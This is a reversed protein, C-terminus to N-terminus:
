EEEEKVADIAKFTDATVAAMQEADEIVGRGLLTRSVSSDSVSGDPLLAPAGIANSHAYVGSNPLSGPHAGSEAYAKMRAAALERQSPKRGIRGVQALVMAGLAAVILLASTLEFVLVYRGFMLTALGQVNGGANAKDLGVATGHIAGGISFFMLGLLGVGGVIAMARQGKITEVLSDPANMGVMRLVFVFMMLVAGTYVIIQVVFLFDAGLSAFLAALSIMALAMSLVSYVARRFFILGLAGFVALPAAIWFTVEAGTVLPLPTM